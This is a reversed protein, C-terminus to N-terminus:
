QGRWSPHQMSLAGVWKLAGGGFSAKEDETEAVVRLARTPVVHLSVALALLPEVMVKPLSLHGRVSQAGALPPSPQSPTCCTHTSRSARTGCGLRPLYDPSHQYFRELLTASVGAGKLPSRVCLAQELGVWKPAADGAGASGQVDHREDAERRGRHIHRELSRQREASPGAGFAVDAGVRLDARELGVLRPANLAVM